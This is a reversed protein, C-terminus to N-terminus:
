SPSIVVGGRLNGTKVHEGNLSTHKPAHLGLSLPIRRKVAECHPNPRIPGEVRRNSSAAEFIGQTSMSVTYAPTHNTRPSGLQTPHPPPSGRMVCKASNPGRFRSIVVVGRLNGTKARDGDLNIHTQHTSVWASHSAAAPQRANRM